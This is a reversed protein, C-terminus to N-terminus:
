VNSYVNSYMTRQGEQRRKGVTTSTHHMSAERFSNGSISYTSLVQSSVISSSFTHYKPYSLAEHLSEEQPTPSYFVATHEYRIKKAM